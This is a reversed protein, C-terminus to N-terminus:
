APPMGLAERVAAMIRRRDWEGRGAAVSLRQRPEVVIEVSRIVGGRGSSGERVDTVRQRPFRCRSPYDGPRRLYVHTADVTVVAPEKWGRCHRVILVVVGSAALAVAGVLGAKTPLADLRVPRTAIFVGVASLFGLLVVYPILRNYFDGRRPPIVVTLAGDQSRNIQVPFSDDVSSEYALVASGSPPPAVTSQRQTAAASPATELAIGLVHAVWAREDAPRGELLGVRRGDRLYVYVYHAAVNTEDDRGSGIGEIAARPIFRRGTGPRRPHPTSGVRLGKPTLHIAHRRSAELAVRWGIWTATGLLGLGLFVFLLAPGLAATWSHAAVVIGTATFCVGLPGLVGRIVAAEGAMSRPPAEGIRLVLKCPRREVEVSAVPSPPPKPKLAAVPRPKSDPQPAQPPKTGPLPPLPALGLERRLRDAVYHVEPRKRRRLPVIVRGDALRVELKWTQYGAASRDDPAVVVDAIEGRALNEHHPGTWTTSWVVRVDDPGVLFRAPGGFVVKGERTREIGYDGTKPQEEHDAAEAASPISMAAAM